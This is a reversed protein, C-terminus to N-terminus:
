QLSAIADRTQSAIASCLDKSADPCKTDALVAIQKLMTPDATGDIHRIVFDRFRSDQRTFMELTGLDEWHDALLRTVSESFGEGIAGDDCAAFRLFANHLEEWSRSTGATDLARSADEPSCPVSSQAVSQPLQSCGSLWAALLTLRMLGKM